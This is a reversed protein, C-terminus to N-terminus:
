KGRLAEQSRDRQEILSRRHAATMLGPDGIRDISYSDSIGLTALMPQARTSPSSKLGFWAQLDKATMSLRAQNGWSFFLDNVKGAIWVVAAAGTEIRSNRRFIMPDGKAVTALVRRSATRFEIDLIEDCCRDILDLTQQVATKIDEEIDDWNFPEDPLEADNLTQLATTGGVEAALLGLITQQYDNTQLGSGGFGSSIMGPVAFDPANQFGGFDPMDVEAFSGMSAFLAAVGQPREDESIAELYDDILDEVYDLTEASLSKDFSREDDAFQIYARLVKPMQKLYGYPAMVKRPMWDLLFIEVSTPSWRLPDCPGYGTGFWLINDVLNATERGKCKKAFNSALFKAKLTQQDEESPPEWNYGVGDEPLLRIMWETVARCQPWTETVSRPMTHSERDIAETIRARADAPDLNTWTAGRLAAAEGSILRQCYDVSQDTIFGDHVISGSNHNLHIIASLDQHGIKVGVMIDSADGYPDRLELCNTTTVGPLSLIWSPVGHSRKLLEHDIERLPAGDPQLTRIVHLMATTEVRDVELFTHLLFELTTDDPNAQEFPNRERPDVVTLLGGIQM